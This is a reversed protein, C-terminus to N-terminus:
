HFKTPPGLWFTNIKMLFQDFKAPPGLWWANIKMPFKNFKAPPGLWFYQNENSTWSIQRSALWFAYIKM